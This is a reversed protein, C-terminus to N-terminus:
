DAIARPEASPKENQERRFASTADYAKKWLRMVAHDIRDSPGTRQLAAGPRSPFLIM